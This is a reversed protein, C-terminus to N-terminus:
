NQNTPKFNLFEVCNKCNKYKKPEKFECGNCKDADLYNENYWRNFCKHWTPRYDYREGQEFASQLEAVYMAKAKMIADVLLLDQMPTTELKGLIDSFEQILYNVATKKM